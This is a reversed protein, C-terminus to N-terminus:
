RHGAPSEITNFENKPCIKLSNLFNVSGRSVDIEHLVLSLQALSLFLFIIESFLNRQM